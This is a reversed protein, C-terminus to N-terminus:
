LPSSTMVMMKEFQMDEIAYRIGGVGQGSQKLGTFPMADVRFATHENIMVAAANLQRYCQNAQDISETFVAAQFAYPSDNAQRLADALDDYGYVCIVPGFIEERSVLADAPPELLVTCAYCQQALREGGCLLTAGQQVAQQVWDHIRVQDKERILPGAQTAMDTPDGVQWQEAQAVLQQCFRERLSNHVFVRQVSVCVQGAHYFGGKAIAPIAKALDAQQTVIVPATGGHELLYKVGPALQRCLQWGVKASGIFSFYALQPHQLMAASVQHDVTLVPQIWGSPLGAQHFLEVLRFCALPTVEAPKVIVACGAAIATAVQHIILNLPHNFASFALVIGLPFRQTFAYRDASAASYNMPVVQGGQQRMAEMCLQLGEIARRVEVLSDQYPKGGEEALQLAWTEPNAQLYAVVRNFIEIRNAISLPQQMVSQATHYLTEIHSADITDVQGLVQQSYPATVTIQGAAQQLGQTLGFHQM